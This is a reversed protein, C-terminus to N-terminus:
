IVGLRVLVQIVILAYLGAGLDDLMIGTGGRLRELRRVPPPKIVDFVRFLIFGALLTKWRLPVAVLALMQGAVEDIVVYGPDHKGSEREVITAAPIGILCAFVVVAIAVIPLSAAPLRSAALYWLITTEASAWTGPGPRLFGTGLFTAALWAWRTRRPAIEPAAAGM